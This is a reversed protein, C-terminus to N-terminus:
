ICVSLKLFADFNLLIYFDQSHGDKMSWSSYIKKFCIFLTILYALVRMVFYEFFSFYIM